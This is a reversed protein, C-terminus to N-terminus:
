PLVVSRQLASLITELSEIGCSIRLRVGSPLQVEIIPAVPETLTVPMWTVSSSTQPKTVSTDNVSPTATASAPPALQDRRALERRWAHFNPESLQHEQCYARIGLGSSQWGSVRGRWYQEKAENRMRNAM